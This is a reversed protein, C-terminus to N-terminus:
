LHFRSRSKSAFLWNQSSWRCEFKQVQLVSSHHPAPGSAPDLGTCWSWVRPGSKVEERGRMSPSPWLSEADGGGALIPGWHQGKGRDLMCSGPSGTPTSFKAVPFCHCCKRRGSKQVWPTGQPGSLVACVPDPGHVPPQTGRSEAIAITKFCFLARKLFPSLCTNSRWKSKRM